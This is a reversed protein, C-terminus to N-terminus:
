GIVALYYSASVVNGTHDDFAVFIHNADNVTNTCTVGGPNSPGGCLSGVPARDPTNPTVLIAKNVQSSGFNLNDCPCGGNQASKHFDNIIGGSQALVNGASDVIAWRVRQQFAGPDRGGLLSANPVTGLTSANIQKGTVSNAKLRNGPITNPKIQKGNLKGAAYVSGGLAVFLALYAVVTAHSPWNMRHRM